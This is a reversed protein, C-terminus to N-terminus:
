QRAFNSAGSSRPPLQVEPISAAILKRVREFAAEEQGPPCSSFYSIYAWRQLVGKCLLDRYLWWLRQDNDPTQENEAVFWFVYLGRVERSEGAPGKFIRSATWKSVPMRYPPNGAVDLSVITKELVHWDQGPLCYDPKHISTRDAGMLIINAAVSFGDPASYLRQAFSTDKPLYCLVTESQPVNTSTYDLVQAPLDFNMVASGPVATAQIGPKGLKQHGKLWTVGGAAGGILVLGCILVISKQLNM